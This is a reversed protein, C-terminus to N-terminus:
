RYKNNNFPTEGVIERAQSLLFGDTCPGWKNLHKAAERYQELAQTRRKNTYNGGPVPSEGWVQIFHYAAALLDPKNNV